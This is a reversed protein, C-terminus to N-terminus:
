DWLLRDKKLFIYTPWNAHSLVSTPTAARGLRSMSAQAMYPLNLIEM